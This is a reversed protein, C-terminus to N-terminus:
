VLLSRSVVANLVDGASQLADVERSTFALGFEQEVARLFRVQSLSDWGAVHGVALSDDYRIEEDDFVDRMIAVLRFESEQRNM